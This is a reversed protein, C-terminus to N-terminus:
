VRGHHEKEALDPEAWSNRFGGGGALNTDASSEPLDSHAATREGPKLSESPEKTHTCPEYYWGAWASHILVECGRRQADAASPMTTPLNLTQADHGNILM